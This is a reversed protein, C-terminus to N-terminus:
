IPHSMVRRHHSRDHENVPAASHAALAPWPYAIFADAKSLFGQWENLDGHWIYSFVKAVHERSTLPAASQLAKISNIMMMAMGSPGILAYQDMAREFGDRAANVCKEITAARVAEDHAAALLELTKAREDKRVAENNAALTSTYRVDDIDDTM